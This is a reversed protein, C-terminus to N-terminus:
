MSKNGTKKPVTIVGCRVLEDQSLYVSAEGTSNFSLKKKFLEHLVIQKWKDTDNVSTTAIKESM